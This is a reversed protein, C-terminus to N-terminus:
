SLTRYMCNTDRTCSDPGDYTFVKMYKRAARFSSGCVLVYTSLSKALTVVDIYFPPKVDDLIYHFPSM